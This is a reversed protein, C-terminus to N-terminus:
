YLPENENGKDIRRFFVSSYYYYGIVLCLESIIISYVAVLVGYEKLLAANLIVNLFSVFAMTKLKFQINNNLMLIAGTNYGVFRIPLLFSFVKLLYISYLYEHGFVLIVFPESLNFLLFGCVIGLLFMFANGKRYTTALKETNKHVWRHMKPLLYKNYLIMPAMSITNVILISVGFYGAYKDTLFYKILILHSQSWLLYFIGSLAFPACKLLVELLSVSKENKLKFIKREHGKLSIDGKLWKIIHYFAYLFCLLSAFAYTVSVYQISQSGSILLAIVICCRLTPQMIQSLFLMGYREEVQFRTSCFELASVGIFCVGLITITMRTEADHPGFFAWVLLLSYIVMQNLTVLRFSGEVWSQSNYGKSGIIKLLYSTTGFLALPAAINVMSLVSSLLGYSEVDLSRALIVQSVFGLLATMLGGFWLLSVSKIATEKTM